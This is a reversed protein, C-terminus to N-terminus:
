STFGKFIASSNSSSFNIIDFHDHHNSENSMVKKYLEKGFYSIESSLLVSNEGMMKIDSILKKLSSYTVNVSEYNVIINKFKSFQLIATMDKVKIMPHIRQGSGSRLDCELSILKKRLNILSNEGVFCGIIAGNESLSNQVEIFFKQVNNITNLDFFSIILDIKKSLLLGANEEYEISTVQMGKTLQRLRNALLNNRDGIILISSILNSNLNLVMSEIYDVGISFIYDSDSFQDARKLANKKRDYYLNRNFIM